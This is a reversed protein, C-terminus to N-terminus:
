KGGQITPAVEKITPLRLIEIQAASIAIFGLGEFADLWGRMPWRGWRAYFLRANRVIAVLHNLPPDQSSHYQHFARAEVLQIPVSQTQARFAFDTDEGGYGAYADDFGGIKNFTDRCCAFNLSWFLEHPLTVGVTHDSFVPHVTGISDLLEEDWNHLDAAPLYKVSGQFITATNLSLLRDYMSLLSRSPICDVDLFVLHDAVSSAVALNRAKALPLAEDTTHLPVNVVPFVGSRWPHLAQNMQVIILREPIVTSRELGDILNALHKERGHVLTLVDM